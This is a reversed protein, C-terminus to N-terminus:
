SIDRYNYISKLMSFSLTIKSLSSIIYEHNKYAMPAENINKVSISKSYVGKMSKKYDKINIENKTDFNTLMKGAGNPASFNWKKDSKLVCRLTGTAMNMPIYTYKSDEVKQSGKRIVYKDDFEDDSIFNHPYNEFSSLDSYQIDLFNLIKETIYLRNLFAYKNGINSLKMYTENYPNYINKILEKKTLDTTYYQIENEKTILDDWRCKDYNNKIFNARKEHHYDNIKEICKEYEKKMNRYIIEGASRSGTHVILYYFNLNECIEIFHNGGGLTGFNYSFMEDNIVSMSQESSDNDFDSKHINALYDFASESTETFNKKIFRNLKRFNINKKSFKAVSIGCGMDNGIWDPNILKETNKTIFGTLGSICNNKDIYGNPMIVLNEIINENKMKEIIKISAEDFMNYYEM